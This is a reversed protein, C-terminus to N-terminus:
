SNAGRQLEKDLEEWIRSLAFAGDALQILCEGPISIVSIVYRAFPTGQARFDFGLKLLM